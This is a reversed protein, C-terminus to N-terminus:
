HELLYRRVMLVSCDAYDAVVDPISGFLFSRIRWEHSAGIIVLDYGGNDLFGQICDTLNEAQQVHYHVRGYDGVIQAVSQKVNQRERDLDVATKVIRLLHIAAGTAEGIRVAYELGMQAHPGGGWPLLIADLNDLGRDKLVAVDAKANTIIRQISSNYIQSVSFDGQWGILLLDARRMSTEAILSGFVDHAVDIVPEITTKAVPRYGVTALSSGNSKEAMEAITKSLSPREAFRERAENLPTQVPISVLHVGFVAGGAHQGTALFRGMRLLDAAHQPNALAVVVRRPSLPDILRVVPTVEATVVPAYKEAPAFFARWGSVALRERFLGLGYEIDVRQRSWTFYFILSVGILGLIIAQAVLGSLLIIVLCGLAAFVQVFPTGPVRFSPKYWDPNAVRLVVAGINLAAYSYLQLVSAIEALTELNDIALFLLRWLM